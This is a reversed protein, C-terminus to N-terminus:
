GDGRTHTYTPASVEPTSGGVEARGARGMNVGVVRAPLRASSAAAASTAVVEALTPVVWALVASESDCVSGNVLSGTVHGAPGLWAGGFM